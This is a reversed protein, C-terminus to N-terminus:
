QVFSNSVKEEKPSNLKDEKSNNLKDIPHTQNFKEEYKRIVNSKVKNKMIFAIFVDADMDMMELSKFFGMIQDFQLSLLKKEFMKFMGIAVTFVIDYGKFLFLDWIRVTVPFPFADLFVLMFWKTGYFMTMVNEKSFHKQLKPCEKEFIQEFIWFTRQLFPFGPLFIGRMSYKPSHLLTVILWFADEEVVYMLIFATMDSMGQCYGLEPDLVSYAKLINFLSVQGSGFRERFQIHNRFSRNIDLDIQEAWKSSCKILSQYKEEDRRSECGTLKKWAESRISEPIGKLVRSKIKKPNKELYVDWQKIMKSWKQSRSRELQIKRKEDKPKTTDIGKSKKTDRDNQVFGFENLSGALSAIEDDDKEPPRKKNLSSWQYRISVDAGNTQLIYCVDDKGSETAVHMPTKQNNNFVVVEADKRILMTSLGEIGKAATLHLPTNGNKDKINVKAGKEVLLKGCEENGAKCALHLPTQGNKDIADLDIGEVALLIELSKIDKQLAATHLPTRKKSGRKKRTKEDEKVSKKVKKSEM